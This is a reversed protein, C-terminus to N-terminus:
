DGLVEFGDAFGRDDVGYFAINSAALGDVSSFEGGMVFGDVRPYPVITNVIRGTTELGLLSWASGQRRALTPLSANPGATARAAGFYISDGSRAMTRIGLMAPQDPGLAHWNEGDWRALSPTAIPDGVNAETFPGGVYLDSGDVLFSYVEQNVGEGTASALTHRAVGDWRAVRNATTQTSGAHLANVIGGVYLEDNVVALANVRGSFRGGNALESWSTGNWRLLAVQSFPDVPSNSFIGGMYLDGRWVTLARISAIGPILPPQGVAHWSVGDWRLVAEGTGTQLGARWWVGAAHLQGEYMALATVLGRTGDGYADGLASWRRGDWRAVANAPVGGIETFEGGVYLMDSAEDHVIARIAGNAGGLASIWGRDISTRDRSILDRNIRSVSPDPARQRAQSMERAMSPTAVLTAFMVFMAGIIAASCSKVRQM